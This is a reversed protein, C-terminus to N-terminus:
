AGKKLYWEGNDMESTKDNEVSELDGKDKNLVKKFDDLVNPVPMYKGDNKRKVKFDAQASIELHTICLEAFFAEPLSYLRSRCVHDQSHLQSRSPEGDSPFVCTKSFSQGLGALM